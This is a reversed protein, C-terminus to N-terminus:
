SRPGWLFLWPTPCESEQLIEGFDIYLYKNSVLCRVLSFLLKGGTFMIM